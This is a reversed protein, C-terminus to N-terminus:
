RKREGVWRRSVDSFLSMIQYIQYTQVEPIASGETRHNYTQSFKEDKWQTERAEALGIKIKDLERLWRTTRGHTESKSRRGKLIKRASRPDHKRTYKCIIYNQLMNTMRSMHYLIFVTIIVEGSCMGTRSINPNPPSLHTDYGWAQCINSPSPQVKWNM